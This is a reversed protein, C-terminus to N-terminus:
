ENTATNSVGRKTLWELVKKENFMIKRNFKIYPIKNEYQYMFRHLTSKSIRLEERLQKSDIYGLSMQKRRLSKM